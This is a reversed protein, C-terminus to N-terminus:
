GGYRNFWARASFPLKEKRKEEGAPKGVPLIIRPVKEEPLGLMEAIKEARDEMRLWGDVWVSAYGLDTITLLINEVAAACDEVQFSLGEYTPPPDRDVLCVIFAAASRMAKNTAHLSRISERPGNEDVIVFLTTQANRGSPAALGAAVIRELDERPLPVDLFEGRYSHRAHIAELTEM